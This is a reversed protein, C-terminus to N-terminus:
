ACFNEGKLFPEATLMLKGFMSSRIGAMSDETELEEPYIHAEPCHPKLAISKVEGDKWERGRRWGRRWCKMTHEGCCSGKLEWSQKMWPWFLRLSEGPGFSSVIKSIIGSTPLPSNGSFISKAPSTIQASLVCFPFRTLFSPLPRQNWGLRKAARHFSWSLILAM